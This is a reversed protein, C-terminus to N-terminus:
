DAAADRAGRGGRVTVVVIGAAFVLAACPAAGVDHPPRAPWVWPTTWPGNIAYVALAWLSLPGIWSLSGGAVAAALLAIGTMGALDRLLGVNGDALQATAARGGRQEAPDLAAHDAARGRM